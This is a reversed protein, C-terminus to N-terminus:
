GLRNKGNRCFVNTRKYQFVRNIKLAKGTTDKVCKKLNYNNEDIKSSSMMM